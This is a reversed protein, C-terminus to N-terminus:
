VSITKVKYMPYLKQINSVNKTTPKIRAPELEQHQQTSCNPEMIGLLKTLVELRSRLWQKLLVPGVNELSQVGSHSIEGHAAKNLVLM